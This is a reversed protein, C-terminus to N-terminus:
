RQAFFYVVVSLLVFILAVVEEVKAAPGVWDTESDFSNNQAPHRPNYRITMRSDPEVREPSITTGEYRKGDVTYAFTVAYGSVWLGQRQYYQYNPRSQASICGIVEAETERWGRKGLWGFLVDARDCVKQWRSRRLSEIDINRSESM